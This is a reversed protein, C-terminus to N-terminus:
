LLGVALIGCKECGFAYCFKWLHSPNGVSVLSSPMDFDPSDALM